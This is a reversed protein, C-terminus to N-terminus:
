VARSPSGMASFLLGVPTDIFKCSMWFSMVMSSFLLRCSSSSSVPPVLIRRALIRCGAGTAGGAGGWNRITGWPAWAAGAAGMSTGGGAAGAASAEASPAGAVTWWTRGTVATSTLLGM